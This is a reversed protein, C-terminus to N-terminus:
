CHLHLIYVTEISPTDIFIYMLYNLTAPQSAQHGPPLYDITQTLTTQALTTQTLTTQAWLSGYWSGTAAFATWLSPPQLRKIM